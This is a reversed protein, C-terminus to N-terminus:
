KGRQQDLLDFLWNCVHQIFYAETEMGPSQEDAVKKTYQWVHVAEHALMARIQNLSFKSRIKEWDMFVYIRDYSWDIDFKLTVAGAASVQDPDAELLSHKQLEKKLATESFAAGIHVPWGGDGLYHVKNICSAM